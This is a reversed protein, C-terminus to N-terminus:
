QNNHCQRSRFNVRQFKLYDKNVKSERFKIIEQLLAANIEELAKIKLNHKDKGSDIKSKLAAVEIKAKESSTTSKDVTEEIEKLRFEVINGDKELQLGKGENM